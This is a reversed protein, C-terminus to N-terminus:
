RTTAQSRPTRGRGQPESRYPRPWRVHRCSGSAWAPAPSPLPRTSPTAAIRSTTRGPSGTSPPIPKSLDGCSPRLPSASATGRGPARAQVAEAVARTPMFGFGLVTGPVPFTKNFAYGRDEFYNPGTFGDIPTYTEVSRRLLTETAIPIANGAKKVNFFGAGK